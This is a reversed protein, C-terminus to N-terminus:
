MNRFRNYNVMLEDFSQWLYTKLKNKYDDITTVSRISMPLVNWLRPAYFCFARRGINLNPYYLGEHFDCNFDEEDPTSYPFKRVLLASLLSPAKDCYCKYVIVLVKFVIRKEIPLWHLIELRLSSPFGQLRGRRLVLKSAQNQVRQLKNICDVKQAGFLLANCYDIRSSIISHVLLEVQSRTLFKRIQRVTKLVNYCSSVVKNVHTKLSLFKDFHFGLYKMTDSITIVDGNNLTVASTSLNRDFVPSSFVIIETKDENIKLFYEDMWLKIKEICNPISENFIYSESSLSFIQYGSNDDAYSLTNYGNVNFVNSLSSVYINFLVPGLVSGQPVGCTLVISESFCDDILVRQSRNSLFSRFWRLATGRIRLENCLINLLKRHNVTDFAASLDIFMVVVGNRSDVGVLIDNIFKLLLFETSHQKKYGFQTNNSYDISDMHSQLRSLVVREILKGVFQLNSVPRYNNFINIDLDHAKLLPRIIAEKLAGDISGLSLSLNILETLFPILADIQVSLLPAPLIDAPSVKIGSNTIISKVEDNSCPEFNYLCDSQVLSSDVNTISDFSDITEPPFGSRINTIKDIFFHNFDNSLTCKDGHVEPLVSSKSKGSMENVLKFLSKQDNCHSIIKQNLEHTRKALVLDKCIQTQIDLFRKDIFCRTRKYTREFKRRKAREKVYEEDMWSPRDRHTVKCIRAPAHKDLCHQLSANYSQIAEAFTTDHDSQMNQSMTTVLDSQFLEMNINKYNRVMRPKDYNEDLVSSKLDVNFIIPFHDSLKVHNEVSINTIQTMLDSDSLVLDITNGERQTPILPISCHLDFEELLDLFKITESENSRNLHVNFDGCILYSNYMVVIESLFKSFESLFADFASGFLCYRYLSILCTSNADNLHVVVVEFSNYNKFKSIEVKKYGVSNKLLVATGKCRGFTNTHFLKFSYKNILTKMSKHQKKLWTESLFCVDVKRADATDM